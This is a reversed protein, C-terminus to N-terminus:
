LRSQGQRPIASDSVSPEGIKRLFSPPTSPAGDGASRM